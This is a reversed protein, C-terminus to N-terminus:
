RLPEPKRGNPLLERVRDHVVEASFPKGIFHAGDPMAGPSPTMQGSAVLIGVHPWRRAVERALAFGDCSGPMQVDTFLLQVTDHSDEMIRLAADADRADLTTFGADELIACADMRILADDDVVLAAPATM